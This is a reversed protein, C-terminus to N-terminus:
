TQADLFAVIGEDDQLVGSIRYQDEGMRIPSKEDVALGNARDALDLSLTASQIHRTKEDRLDALM